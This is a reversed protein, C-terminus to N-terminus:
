SSILGPWYKWALIICTSRITKDYHHYPENLQQVIASVTAAIMLIWMIWVSFQIVKYRGIFSDAVIAM